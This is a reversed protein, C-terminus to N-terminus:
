PSPKAPPADGPPDPVWRIVPGLEDHDIVATGGAAPVSSFSSPDPRRRPTVAPSRPAGILPPRGRGADDRIPLASAGETGAPVDSEARVAWPFAEGEVGSPPSGQWLPIGEPDAHGPAGRIPDAHPSAPADASSDTAAWDPEGTNLAGSPPEMSLTRGTGVPGLELSEAGIQRLAYAAAAKPVVAATRTARHRLGELHQMTGVEVMPILRFLTFPSFAALLLLSGGALVASVPAKSSPALAGVALSLIAVIVFKSLVLAALSEVLRRCWHAITPWVLSALALPLFLVAAYVAAARVLLEIWLGLAGLGVVLAALLTVFTPTASNGSVLQNAMANALGSLASQIDNGSHRAVTSSLADTTALALQVLQMAAFTLLIALPLQVFFSRLLIAASQHYIAQFVSVLLLPVIVAVAIGAMTQYHSEFWSARVDIGTTSSIVTAIQTLLWSAGNVVWGAVADLVAGAGAGAISSGVGSAAQCITDVPGLPPCGAVPIIPLASVVDTSM